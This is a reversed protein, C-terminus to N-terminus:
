ILNQKQLAKKAHNVIQKHQYGESLACAKRNWGKNHKDVINKYAKKRAEKRSLPINVPEKIDVEVKLNIKFGLKELVKQYQNVSYSCEAKIMRLMKRESVGVISALENSSFSNNNYFNILAGHLKEVINHM